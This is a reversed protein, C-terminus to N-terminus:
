FRSFIALEHSCRQASANLFYNHSVTTLMCAKAGFSFLRLTTVLHTRIYGYRTLLLWSRQYLYIQLQSIILTIQRRQNCSIYRVILSCLSKSVKVTKNLILLSQQYAKHPLCPPWEEPNKCPIDNTINQNASQTVPLRSGEM